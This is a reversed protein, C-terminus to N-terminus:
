RVLVMKKTESKEAAILRYFYIGSAVSTGQEDNGDWVIEHYGATQQTTQYARVEQGLLNYITLKADGTAPLTFGIVTEPNFPNPYNQELKFSLPLTATHFSRMATWDGVTNATRARVHWSYTMEPDFSSEPIWEATLATAISDQVTIGVPALNEISAVPTTTDMVDFVEFDFGTIPTGNPNQEVYAVFRLREVSLTDNDAPFALQAALASTESGTVAVHMIQVHRGETSAVYLINEDDIAIGTPLNLPLMGLPAVEGLYVGTSSFILIRGQYRDTIFINGDPGVSMEGARTVQDLDSGFSCFIREVIGTTSLKWISSTTQDTVYFANAIECYDFSAPAGISNGSNNVIPITAVYMLSADFHVIAKLGVDLVYLQNNMRVLDVPDQLGSTPDLVTEQTNLTPDVQVISKSKRDCFLFESTNYRILGAANGSINIKQQLQGDVTFLTIQKSFPELVAIQEADVYLSTPAFLSDVISGVYTVDVTGNAGASLVLTLLILLYIHIRLSKM